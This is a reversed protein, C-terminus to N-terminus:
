GAEIAHKVMGACLFITTMAWLWAMVVRIRAVIDCVNITYGAFVWPSCSGSPLQPLWGWSTDKNTTGVVDSLKDGRGKAQEDLSKGWTDVDSKGTPSGDENVKVKCDSETGCTGSTSAGSSNGGSSGGSSGSGSGGSSGSGSGGSSGSGSGGSSGSGSGGSSGSGSGGSSGSGSGGSSGSGSSSASGSGSSNSGSSAGSGSSSNSGGICGATGIVCSTGPVSNGACSQGNFVSTLLFNNGGQDVITNTVNCGNNCYSGAWGSNIPPQYVGSNTYSKCSQSSASSSSTSETVNPYQLDTLQVKGDKINDTRCSVASAVTTVYSWGQSGCSASAASQWASCFAEISTTSINLVRKDCGWSSANFSFYTTALSFSSYFALFLYLLLKLHRM